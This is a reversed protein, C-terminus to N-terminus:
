GGAVANIFVIEADNKLIVEKKSVLTPPKGDIFVGVFYQLKGEATFMPGLLKPYLAILERYIGELTDESSLHEITQNSFRRLQRPITITHM